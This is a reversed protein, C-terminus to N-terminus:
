SFIAQRGYGNVAGTISLCDSFLTNHGLIIICHTTQFTTYVCESCIIIRKLM